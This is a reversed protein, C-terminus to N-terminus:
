AAGVHITLKIAGDAVPAEVVTHGVREAELRAKEVAYAQLLKDLEVRNGWRGEYNDFALKGRELDCVLPYRWGPLEVCHGTVAGTFLQATQFVPTSLELRRCARSLAEVDRIETQVEVIHSM